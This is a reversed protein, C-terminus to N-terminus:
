SGKVELEFKGVLLQLVFLENVLLMVNFSDFCSLLLKFGFIM